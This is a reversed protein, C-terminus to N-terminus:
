SLVGADAPMIGDLPVDNDNSWDEESIGLEVVEPRIAPLNAM